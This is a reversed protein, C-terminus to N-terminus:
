RVNGTNSKSSNYNISCKLPGAIDTPAQIQEETCAEGSDQTCKLTGDAKALTVSKVEALVNHRRKGVLIGSAIDRVHAATCPKKDPGVCNATVVTNHQTIPDAPCAPQRKGL